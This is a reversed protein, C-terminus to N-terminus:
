IRDIKQSESKWTRMGRIRKGDVYVPEVVYRSKYWEALDSISMRESDIYAEGRNKYEDKIEDALQKAHTKNLARRYIPKSKGNPLTIRVRAYLYGTKPDTWTYSGYKKRKAM